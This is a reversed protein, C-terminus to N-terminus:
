NNFNAKKAKYDRLLADIVMYVQKQEEESLSSIENIRTLIVTDLETDTLEVLYDLSIDLAKAIRAAVEISPIAEGREYRGLANAHLGIRLALEGLLVAEM